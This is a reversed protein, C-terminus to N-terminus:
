LAVSKQGKEVCAQEVQFCIRQISAQEEAPLNVIFRSSLDELVDTFTLSAYASSAGSVSTSATADISGNTDRKKAGMDASRIRQGNLDILTRPRSLPSGKPHRGTTASVCLVGLRKKDASCQVQVASPVCLSVYAHVANSLTRGCCFARLHTCTHKGSCGCKVRESESESESEEAHSTAM